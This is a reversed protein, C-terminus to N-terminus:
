MSRLVKEGRLAKAMNDGHKLTEMDDNYNSSEMRSQWIHWVIWLVFCVIVLLTEIGVFPYLPGIALMDGTWNEINGTSM